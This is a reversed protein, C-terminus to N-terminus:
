AEAMLEDGVVRALRERDIGTWALAKAARDVSKRWKEDVLECEEAYGSAKLEEEAGAMMARLVDGERANFPLAVTRPGTARDVTIRHAGIALMGNDFHIEIQGSYRPRRGAHKMFRASVILGDPMPAVVDADVTEEIGSWEIVLKDAFRWFASGMRRGPVRSMRRLARTLEKGDVTALHM